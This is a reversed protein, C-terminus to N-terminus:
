SAFVNKIKGLISVKEKITDSGGSVVALFLPANRILDSESATLSPPIVIKNNRTKTSGGMKWCLEHINKNLQGKSNYDDPETILHKNDIHSVGMTNPYATMIRSHCETPDTCVM